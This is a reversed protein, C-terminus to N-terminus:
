MMQIIKQLFFPNVYSELFIGALLILNAAVFSVLYRMKRNKRKEGRGHEMGKKKYARLEYYWIALVFIYLFWQPLFFGALLLIGKVGYNMISIVSLFGVSFGLYCTYVQVVLTGYIGISLIFLLLFDPVREYFLYLFLERSQVDAYLYRNMFYESIAGLERGSAIGLINACIVGSLFVFFFVCTSKKMDNGDLNNKIYCIGTM